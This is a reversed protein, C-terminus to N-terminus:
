IDKGRLWDQFARYIEKYEKINEETRRSPVDLEPNLTEIDHYVSQILALFVQKSLSKNYHFDPQIEKMWDECMKNIRQLIDYLQDDVEIEVKM